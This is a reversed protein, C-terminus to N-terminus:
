RIRVLDIFNNRLLEFCICAADEIPYISLEEITFLKHPPLTIHYVENKYLKLPEDYEKALEFVCNKLCNSIAETPSEGEGLSLLKSNILRQIVDSQATDSSIFAGIISQSIISDMKSIVEGGPETYKQPRTIAFYHM